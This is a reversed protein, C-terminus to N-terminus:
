PKNDRCCATNTKKGRNTQPSPCLCILGESDERWSLVNNDRIAGQRQIVELSAVFALPRGSVLYIRTYDIGRTTNKKANRRNAIPMSTQQKRRIGDTMNDRNQRNLPYRRHKEKMYGSLKPLKKVKESLFHVKIKCIDCFLQVKAATFGSYIVIYIRYIYTLYM